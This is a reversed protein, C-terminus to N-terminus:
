SDGVDSHFRMTWEWAEVEGLGEKCLLPLKSYFMEQNVRVIERLIKEYTKQPFGGTNPELEAPNNASSGQM